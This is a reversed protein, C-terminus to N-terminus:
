ESQQQEKMAQAARLHQAEADKALARKADLISSGELDQRSHREQERGSALLEAVRGHLQAREVPCADLPPAGESAQQM